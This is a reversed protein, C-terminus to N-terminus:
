NNFVDMAKDLEENVIKAYVQTEKLSSHGMLKSVKDITVGKRLARTAWTHRSTHFSINKALGLRTAIIKLNKNILATKAVIVRHAETKNLQDYNEPLVPFVFNAPNPQGETDNFTKAKYYNLIELGITPVKVSLPAGTKKIKLTIHTGDFNSWRLQLLDSIRLGGVYAAFIYMNRHDHLNTSTNLKIVEMAKLEAETLYARETAESKLKFSYFPNKDRKLLKENVANNVITRILKLNSHITNVKNGLGVLHEQYDKLFQVTLEHFYLPEQNKYAKLKEITYKARRYTGIKGTALLNDIYKQAFQFFDHKSRGKVQEFSHENFTRDELVLDLNEAEAEAKKKSILANMRVSNPHNKKVRQEKEDWQNEFLKIGIAMFKTKRDKIARIYVPYSGDENQKNKKLLVKISGM